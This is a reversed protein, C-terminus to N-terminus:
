DDIGDPGRGFFKSGIHVRPPQKGVNACLPETAPCRMGHAVLLVAGDDTLDVGAIGHHPLPVSLAAWSGDPSRIQAQANSVASVRGDNACRVQQVDPVALEEVWGKISLRFVGDPNTGYVGTGNACRLAVWRQSRATRVHQWGNSRQRLVHGRDTQLVLRGHEVAIVRIRAKLPVQEWRTSEGEVRLLWGPLSTAFWVTEPSNGAANMWGYYNRGEPHAPWPRLVGPRGNPWARFGRRGSSWLGHSEDGTIMGLPPREVSGNEVRLVDVSDGTLFAGNGVGLVDHPPLQSLAWSAKGVDREQVPFVIPTIGHQDYRLAVSHTAYMRSAYQPQIRALEQATFGSAAVWADLGEVKMELLYGFRDERAIREALPRHGSDIILQGVACATGHDDIFVPQQGAVQHNHPFVGRERYARLHGLSALRRQRQELPLDSVDVARLEREVRELHAAIRAPKSFDADANPRTPAIVSLLMSLALVM